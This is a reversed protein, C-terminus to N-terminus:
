FVDATKINMNCKVATVECQTKSESNIQVARNAAIYFPNGGIIWLLLVSNLFCSLM